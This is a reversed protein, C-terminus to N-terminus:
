ESSAGRCCCSLYKGYGMVGVRCTLEWGGMMSACDYYVYVCMAYSSLFCPYCNLFSVVPKAADAGTTSSNTPWVDAQPAMKNVRGKKKEGTDRCVTCVDAAVCFVCTM